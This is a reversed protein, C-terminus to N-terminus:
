VWKSCDWLAKVVEAALALGCAIAAWGNRTWYAFACIFGAIDCFSGAGQFINQCEDLLAFAFAAGKIPAAVFAAFCACDTGITSGVCTWDVVLRPPPPRYFYASAPNAPFAASGGDFYRSAMLGSPDIRNTPNGGVYAYRNTGGCMGAPDKQVFRRAEPDYVRARYHYLSSGANAERGTYQFPNALSGSSSTDGWPSYAYANVTAQGADTVKSTSGLGDRQYTYYSGARVQEVPQDVGLGQTYRAQRIGTSDYEAVVNSLGSRGPVEHRYYTPASCASSMREGNPAYTYTCTGRATMRNEYDYAFSTNLGTAKNYAWKRNGNADYGYRMGATGVTIDWLRDDADYAYTKTASGKIENVLNGVADYAYTTVVSGPETMKTLRNLKDYVYSTVSANALKISFRNGAKDYTYEFREILTSDSKKTEVKMLRSTANWTNMTIVGNAYTTSTVRSDRDYVYTTARTEPDTIKWQRNAADYAYSTTGSEPDLTTLRNGNADYTYTTTKSFAGYNMAVSTVRDLEDYASTKTYGFGVESTPNSNKDYAYTVTTTGPYGISFLRNLKDFSFTTTAGNADTRGIRNGAADYRSASAYGTPSTVKAQRDYIDYEYSTVHNNADKVSLLSERLDYSLTTRNGLADTMVQMRGNTVNISYLTAFGNPDTAKTRDGRANYEYLTFNGLPDTVKTVRDDADYTTTTVFGLSSTTTTRRGIADYGYQTVDNLPDTVKTMYGNVNYEFWTSYGRFDISKNLFGLSTYSPYSVDNKANTIKVINGNVDTVYSTTFGRFNTQSAPCVQYFTGYNSETWTWTSVNSGPDTRSVVSSRYDYDMTWSNGRGDTTMIKNMEGDWAYSSSNGRGDCCSSGISPGSAQIPNGFSNLMLSTTLGRANTITRTTATSYAIMYQRFQWVVSGSQYLGLWIESVRNSGDYVFATRKGVPDVIGSMKGAAYTYNEYFNMPDKVAVLNSSGDYTYVIQRSLPDTVTSIRNLADYGLNLSKGSDDAVTTLRGNGDYTVTVKNGNRDTVSSLRGASTFDARTGDKHSVTFTSDGNKVLRSTSGRPAGYGSSGTKPTFTQQAGDADNGTVTLDPNVVLNANYNHTWGNGFPGAVSGLLSNYSRVISLSFARGQVSLDQKSYWLNGNVANALGGVYPYWPESGTNATPTVASPVGETTTLEWLTPSYDVGSTLTVRLQYYRQVSQDPVSYFVGNGMDSKLNTWPGWTVNDASSRIRVHLQDYASVTGVVKTQLPRNVSGADRVPTTLTGSRTNKVWVDDVQIQSGAATWFQIHGSLPPVPPSSDTLALLRAGQWWVEFYNGRALISPRYFTGASISTTFSGLTTGTGNVWRELGVYGTSGSIYLQYRNDPTTGARRFSLGIDGLSTFNVAFAIQQDRWPGGAHVSSGSGMQMVGGAFTVTGADITWGTGLNNNFNHAFWGIKVTNDGYDTTADVFTSGGWGAWTALTWTPDVYLPYVARALMDPNLMLSLVGNSYAVSSIANPWTQPVPTSDWAHFGGATWMTSGGAVKLSITNAVVMVNLGTTTLAASMMNTPPTNPIVITEKIAEPRFEYAAGPVKAQVFSAGFRGVSFQSPSEALQYPWDGSSRNLATAPRWAGDWRQFTPLQHMEVTGDVNVVREWGSGYTVSSPASPQATAASVERPLVAFAVLVMLLVASGAFLRRTRYATPSDPSDESEPNPREALPRPVTGIRTNALDASRSPQAKSSPPITNPALSEM